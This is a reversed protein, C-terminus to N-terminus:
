KQIRKVLWDPMVLSLYTLGYFLIAFVWAVYVFQSYGPHEFFVILITDGVFMMFFGIMCLMAYFLLKLGFHTVKDIASVMTKRCIRAIYIYVFCSYLVLAITTYIRISSVYEDEPVGWYNWPLFLLVVIIAGIIVMPILLKEGSETIETIFKILFINSITVCCYGFPLSFRYIEKYYGSFVGEGLGFTLGILAITFITFVITLYLPAAVKREKWKLFMKLSLYVALISLFIYYIFLPGVNVYDFPTYSM